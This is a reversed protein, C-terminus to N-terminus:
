RGMKMKAAMAEKLTIMPLHISYTSTYDPSPENKPLGYQPNKRCYKPNWCKKEVFQSFVQKFSM